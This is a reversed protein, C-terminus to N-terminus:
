LRSSSQRVLRSSDGAHLDGNEDFPIGLADKQRGEPGKERAMEGAGHRTEGHPGKISADRFTVLQAPDDLVEQGLARRGIGDDRERIDIGTRGIERIGRIRLGLHGLPSAAVLAEIGMDGLVIEFSPEQGIPRRDLLKGLVVHACGRPRRFLHVM